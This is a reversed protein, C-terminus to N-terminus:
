PSCPKLMQAMQKEAWDQRERTVDPQATNELALFLERSESMNLGTHCDREVPDIQDADGEFEIPDTSSPEQAVLVIRVGLSRALVRLAQLGKLRLDPGSGTDDDGTPTRAPQGLLELVSAPVHQHEWIPVCTPAQCEERTPDHIWTTMINEHNSEWLPQGPRNLKFGAETWLRELVRMGAEIAEETMQTNM